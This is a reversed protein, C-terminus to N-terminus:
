ACERSLAIRRLVFQIMLLQLALTVLTVIKLNSIQFSSVMFIALIVWFFSKKQRMMRYSFGMILGLVTMGLLVGAEGFNMFMAGFTSPPLSNLVMKDVSMGPRVQNGIFLNLVYIGDDIPPKEPIFKRPIWSYILDRFTEGYWKENKSFHDLLFIYTDVHSVHKIVLDSRDVIDQQVDVRGSFVDELKGEERLTPVAVIYIALFCMGIVYHIARLKIVKRIGIIFFAYLLLDVTNRRGGLITLLVAILVGQILFILKRFGSKPPVYYLKVLFGLQAFLIAIMIYGYGSYMEARKHINALFEALGGQISIYVFFSAVGLLIFINGVRMLLVPDFRERPEVAMFEKSPASAPSNKGAAINFGIAVMVVSAAHWFLYETLREYYRRIGIKSVLLPSGFDINFTVAIAFPITSLAALLLYIVLPNYVSRPRQWLILLSIVTADLVIAFELM